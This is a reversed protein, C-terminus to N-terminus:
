IKWCAGLQSFCGWHSVRHLLRWTLPEAGCFGGSQLANLADKTKQLQLEMRLYGSTLNLSSFLKLSNCHASKM